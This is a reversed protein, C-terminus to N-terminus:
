KSYEYNLMWHIGFQDKLMGFHAGWFQDALPMTVAGNESLAAFVRKIEELGECGLSVAFNDGQHVPRGLPSDSAM